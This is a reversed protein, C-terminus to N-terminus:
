LSPSSERQVTDQPLKSGSPLHGLRHCLRLHPVRAEDRALSPELFWSGQQILALFTPKPPGPGPWAGPMAICQGRGGRSVTGVVTQGETNLPEGDGEPGATVEGIDVRKLAWSLYAGM